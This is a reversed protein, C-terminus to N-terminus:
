DPQSMRVVGTRFVVGDVFCGKRVFMGIISQPCGEGGTAYGQLVSSLPTVLLSYRSNEKRSSVNEFVPPLM